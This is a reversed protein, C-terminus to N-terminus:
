CFFFTFNTAIGFTVSLAVCVLLLVDPKTSKIGQLLVRWPKYGIDADSTFPGCAVM